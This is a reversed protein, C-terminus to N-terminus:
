ARDTHIDNLTWDTAPTPMLARVAESCTYALTEYENFRQRAGIRKFENDLVHNYSTITAYEHGKSQGDDLIARLLPRWMAQAERTLSTSM